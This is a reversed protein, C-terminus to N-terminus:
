PKSTEASEEPFRWAIVKWRPAPGTPAPAMGVIFKRPVDTSSFVVFASTHATLPNSAGFYRFTESGIMIEADVTDHMFGFAGSGSAPGVGVTLPQPGTKPWGFRFFYSRGRPPGWEFATQNALGGFSDWRRFRFEALEPDNDFAGPNLVVFEVPDFKHAPKFEFSDGPLMVGGAGPMWVVHGETVARAAWTRESPAILRGVPLLRGDDRTHRMKARSLVNRVRAVWDLFAAERAEVLGPVRGIASTVREEHDRKWKKLVEVTYRAVDTDILAADSACLWIGNEISAREDPTLAPDHRPGKPSAATIHAARGISSYASSSEDSPGVCPVGCHPASCQFAARKALREIDDRSFDDRVPDTSHALAAM